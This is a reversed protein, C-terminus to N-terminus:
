YVTVIRKGVCGIRLFRGDKAKRVSNLQLKMKMVYGFSQSKLDGVRGSSWDWISQLIM